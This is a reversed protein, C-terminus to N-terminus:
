RFAGIWRLLELLREHEDSFGSEDGARGRANAQADGLGQGRLAGVDDEVAEAVLALDFAQAGFQGLAM